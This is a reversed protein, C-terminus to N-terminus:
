DTSTNKKRGSKKLFYIIVAGTIAIALGLWFERYFDIIKDADRYPSLSLSDQAIADISKFITLLILIPVKM